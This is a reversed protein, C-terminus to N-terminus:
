NTCREVEKMLKEDQHIFCTRGTKFNWIALAAIRKKFIVIKQV